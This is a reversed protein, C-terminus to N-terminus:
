NTYFKRDVAQIDESLYITNRRDFAECRIPMCGIPQQVLEIVANKRYWM